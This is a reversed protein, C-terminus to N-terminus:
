EESGPPPETLLEFGRTAYPHSGEDFGVMIEGAYPNRPNSDAKWVRTARNICDCGQLNVKAAPDAQRLMAILQRETVAEEKM